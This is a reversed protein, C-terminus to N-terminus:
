RALKPFTPKLPATTLPEPTVPFRCLELAHFPLLSIMMAYGDNWCIAVGDPRSLVPAANEAVNLQGYQGPYAPESQTM